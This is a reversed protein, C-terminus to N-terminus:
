NVEKFFHIWVRMHPIFGMRRHIEVWIKKFHDANNCGEVKWCENKVTELTVRKVATLEYARDNVIFQDGPLGYRKRRTTASKVGDELKQRSWLNFPINIITGRGM